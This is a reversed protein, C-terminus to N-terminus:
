LKHEGGFFSANVVHEISVCVDGEVVRFDGELALFVSPVEGLEVGVDQPRLLLAGAVLADERIEQLIRQLPRGQLPQPHAKGERSLPPCLHHIQLLGLQDTLRQSPLDIPIRLPFRCECPALCLCEAIEPHRPNVHGTPAVELVMKDCVELVRWEALIHKAAVDVEQMRRQALVLVSIIAMVFLFQSLNLLRIVGIREEVERQGDPLGVHRVGAVMSM